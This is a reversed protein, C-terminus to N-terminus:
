PRTGRYQALLAANPRYLGIPRCKKPEGSRARALPVVILDGPVEAVMLWAAAGGPQAPFFAPSGFAWADYLHDVDFPGHKALHPANDADIEFPDAEDLLGPDFGSHSM